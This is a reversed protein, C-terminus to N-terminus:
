RFLKDIDVKVTFGFSEDFCRAKNDKIDRVKLETIDPGPGGFIYYYTEGVNISLGDKNKM